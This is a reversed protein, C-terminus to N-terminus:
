YKIVNLFFYGDVFILLSEHMLLDLCFTFLSCVLRILLFALPESTPIEQAHACETDGTKRRSQLSVRGGCLTRLRALLPDGNKEVGPVVHHRGQGALHHAPIVVENEAIGPVLLQDLFQALEPGLDLHYRAGLILGPGVGNLLQDIAGLLGETTEIGGTDPGSDVYVGADERRLVLIEISHILSVDLGHEVRQSRQEGRQDRLFRPLHDDIRAGAGHPRL